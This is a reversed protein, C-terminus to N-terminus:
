VLLRWSFPCGSGPFFGAKEGLLTVSFSFSRRARRLGPSRRPTLGILRRTARHSIRWLSSSQEARDVDRRAAHSTPSVGQREGKAQGQLTSKLGCWGVRAHKNAVLRRAVGRARHPSFDVSWPRRPCNRREGGNRRRPLWRRNWSRQRLTKRIGCPKRMMARAMLVAVKEATGPLARTPASPLLFRGYSDEVGRRGYISTTTYQDRIAPTYYCTWCLGRPRSAPTHGCHRCSM